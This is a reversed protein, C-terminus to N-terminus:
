IKHEKEYKELVCLACDDWYCHEPNDECHNHGQHRIANELVELKSLVATPKTWQPLQVLDADTITVSMCECKSDVFGLDCYACKSM